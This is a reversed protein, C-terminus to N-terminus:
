LPLSGRVEMGAHGTGSICLTYPCSCASAVVELGACVSVGGGRVCVEMGAHGTGSICLTYPSETQFLYRLGRQIEDM